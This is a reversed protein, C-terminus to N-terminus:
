HFKFFLHLNRRALFHMHFCDVFIQTQKCILKNGPCSFDTSKQHHEFRMEEILLLVSVHLFVDAEFTYSLEFGLDHIYRLVNQWKLKLKLKLFLKNSMISSLITTYCCYM